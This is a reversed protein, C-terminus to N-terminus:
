GGGCAGQIGEEEQSRRIWRPQGVGADIAAHPQGSDDGHAQAQARCILAAALAPRGGDDRFLGSTDLAADPQLSGAVAASGAPMFRWQNGTRVIYRLGDFVARLCHTRQPADERCLALYPAV